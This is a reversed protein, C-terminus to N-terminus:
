IESRYSAVIMKQREKITTGQRCHNNVNSVAL